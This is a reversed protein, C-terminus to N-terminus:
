STWKSSNFTQRGVGVMQLRGIVGFHLTEGRHPHGTRNLLIGRSLDVCSRCVLSLLADILCMLLYYYFTDLTRVSCCFQCSLCWVM